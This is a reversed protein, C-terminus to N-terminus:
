ARRACAISFSAGSSRFAIMAMMRLQRGSKSSSNPTPGITGTLLTKRRTGNRSNGSGRGVPAHKGM